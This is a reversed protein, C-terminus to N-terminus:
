SCSRIQTISHSFLCRPRLYQKYHNESIKMCEVEKKGGEGRAGEGKRREEVAM